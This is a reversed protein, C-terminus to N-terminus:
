RIWLIVWFVCAGLVLFRNLNRHWNHQIIAAAGLAPLIALWWRAGLVFGDSVIATFRECAIFAAPALILVVLGHTLAIFSISFINYLALSTVTASADGDDPLEFRGLVRERKSNLWRMVYGTGQGVVLGTIVGVAVMFDVRHDGSHRLLMCTTAVGVVAGSVTDAARTGRMPLISLWVLELGVGAMIAPMLQGYAAGIPLAVFVPRAILSQWGAREDVALLAALVSLLIFEELPFPVSV